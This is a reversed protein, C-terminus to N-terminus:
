YFYRNTWLTLRNHRTFFSNPYKISNPAENLMIIWSCWKGSIQNREPLCVSMREARQVAVASLSCLASVSSASLLSLSLSCTLVLKPWAKADTICFNVRVWCWWHHYFVMAARRSNRSHTSYQLYELCVLYTIILLDDRRNTGESNEPTSSGQWIYTLLCHIHQTYTQRVNGTLSKWEIPLTM